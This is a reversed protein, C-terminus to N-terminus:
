PWTGDETQSVTRDHAASDQVAAILHQVRLGEAFGPVLGAADPGRVAAVFREALARVPPIRGDGESEAPDHMQEDALVGAGTLSFGRMYDPTPNDLVLSGEAGVVHWLHRHLGPNANGVVASLTGGNAFTLRVEALDDASSGAEPAATATLHAQIRCVPGFLWEALYLLHSALLTMVGGEDQGTKWNSLGKRLAYSEVLWTVQVHRLRGLRGTRVLDHLRGFAPLMAFQFDVATPIGRAAEALRQATAVDPGLPKECFVACGAELAPLVAAAVARPPVAITVIDPALALLDRIGAVGRPVGMRDAAAQAKVADRGALGVVEVGPLSAFAPVHAAAGFGLGLTAM